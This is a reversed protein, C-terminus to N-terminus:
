LTDDLPLMGFLWDEIRQMFGNAPQTTLVTTGSVWQLQGSEGFQLQWANGSEFDVALSKRLRQNLSESDIMLGMETNLRLSRPDLNPSGIGVLNHDIILAKAHLSLTKKEAPSLMYLDKDVADSRVEYLEVGGALLTSIHKQYASYASVHNTSSISNTLMSVKIGREILDAFLEEVGQSPILYASIVIVEDQAQNVIDKLQDAVQVPLESEDAPNKDPPKDVLLTARGPDAELLLNQWAALSEKADRETHALTDTETADKLVPEIPKVQTLQDIPIAWQDNWYLDFADSLKPVVSGGVLLELDRFNAQSHLGFYEDALNRGGVLAVQNDVIMAKNHMRHDLRHFEALNLAQRSAFGNSRRLYPNFIRYEVNAHQQLYMLQQDEGLLFTDDVLIRVRVGRNAARLLHDIVAVGVTDLNWLFTQLDISQTADDIAQLRWDLAQTGENLLVFWDKPHESQLEIWLPSVAAPMAMEVPEAVPQLTACSALLHLGMPALLFLMTRLWCPSRMSPCHALDSNSAM